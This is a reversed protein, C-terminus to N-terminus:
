NNVKCSLRMLCVLRPSLRLVTNTMTSYLSM